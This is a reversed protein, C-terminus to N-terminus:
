EEDKKPEKDKNDSKGAKDRNERAKACFNRDIAPHKKNDSM